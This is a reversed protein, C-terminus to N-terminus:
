SWIYEIEKIGPKLITGDEKEVLLQGNVDVGKICGKFISNGRRFYRWENIGFLFGKYENFIVSHNLSFLRILNRDLTELLGNLTETLDFKFGTESLFSVARFMDPFTTQNVNLGIGIISNEWKSSVSNEILIGCVKKGNCLIDNPWKIKVDQEIVTQCYERIALCISMSLLFQHTPPLHIERLIFSFLLNKGAEDQWSTGIQGRGLTQHLTTVVTGSPTDVSKNNEKLWKNTSELDKFRYLQKFFQFNQLLVL